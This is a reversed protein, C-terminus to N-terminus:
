GIYHSVRVVHGDPDFLVAQRANYVTVFPGKVLTAGLGVLVDIHADVAEVSGPDFTLMSSVGSPEAHEGLGVLEYAAAGHLALAIGPALELSRFIPTRMEVNEALGFGQQYFDALRDLDSAFLSVYALPMGM